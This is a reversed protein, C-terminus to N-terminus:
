LEESLIMETLGKGGQVMPYVNETQDVQFDLFVLENKHTTFAERLAGESHQERVDERVGTGALMLGPARQTPVDKMSHVALDARGDILAQEIEKTFFAKGAVRSLPVDTIRDGETRIIVLEVPPAGPLLSVLEAVRRAQWLALDSGRTGIRLPRVDASM